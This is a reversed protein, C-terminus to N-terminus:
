AARATAQEPARQVPHTLMPPSLQRELVSARLRRERRDRRTEPPRVCLWVLAGVFPLLAALATGARRGSRNELRARADRAVAVVTGIWALIASALVLQSAAALM